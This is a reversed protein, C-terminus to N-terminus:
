EIGLGKRLKKDAKVIDEVDEGNIEWSYDDKSTRKLKIRLPKKPKTEALSPIQQISSAEPKGSSPPPAGKCDAILLSILIISTAVLFRKM